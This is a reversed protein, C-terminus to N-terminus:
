MLKNTIQDEKLLMELVLFLFFDCLRSSSFIVLFAFFFFFSEHSLCSAHVLLGVCYSRLGSYGSRKSTRRDASTVFLFVFELCPFWLDYFENLLLLQLIQLALSFFIL